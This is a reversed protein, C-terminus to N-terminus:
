FKLFHPVFILGLGWYWWQFVNVDEGGGTEILTDNM